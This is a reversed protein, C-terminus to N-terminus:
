LGSPQKPRGTEIGNSIYLPHGRLAKLAEEGLGTIRGAVINVKNPAEPQSLGEGLAVSGLEKPTATPAIDSPLKVEGAPKNLAVIESSRPEM